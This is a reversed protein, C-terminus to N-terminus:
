RAPPVKTYLTEVVIRTARICDLAETRM